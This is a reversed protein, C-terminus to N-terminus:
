LHHHFPPIHRYFSQLYHHHLFSPLYLHSALRSQSSQLPAYVSSPGCSRQCLNSSSNLGDSYFYITFSISVLGNVNKVKGGLHSAEDPKGGYPNTAFVHVTRRRTGIAVWRGDGAIDISEIVGSTRGRRLDYIHWPVNAAEVDVPAVSISDITSVSDQRAPGSAQRERSSHGVKRTASRRLPRARPKIQYLRVVGGDSPVVVLSTGDQSFKLGAVVQSSPLTFDTLHEPRGEKDDLLPQLDLVTVHASDSPSVPSGPESAFRESPSVEPHETQGFVSSGGSPKREHRPSSTAAPASRSFFKRLGGGVDSSANSMSEGRAAAVAMGGLVKMGSLLGGGVKLAANGIDAQSVNLPGLHISPSQPLAMRPYIHRLSTTDASPPASAFAVLRSSLHFVPHPRDQRTSYLIDTHGDPAQYTVPRSFTALQRSQITHLINLSRSCLIHLSTPFSTGQPYSDFTM